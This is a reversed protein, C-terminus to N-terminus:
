LMMAHKPNEAYLDEIEDAFRLTIQRRLLKLTPTVLQNEPSFPEDVLCFRKIREFASLETMLSSFEDRLLETVQSDDLSPKDALRLKKALAELDPAILATVYRRGDGIACVSSVLPTRKLANEVAQPAVNKGTALVMIERKRDIITLYGDSDLAGIDGTHYWGDADIAEATAEPRRWYGKMVIPGRVLVEGDDALKLEVGPVAKGVTGLKFERSWTIAATGTLETAGYGEYVPVGIGWFFEISKRNSNAGGTVIFDMRGGLKARMKRLVLSDLVNGLLGLEVTKVKGGGAIAALRRTRCHRLALHALRRMVLGKADVAQIAREKFKDLLHPVTPFATPATEVLNSPIKEREPEAIALTGGSLLTAPVTTNRAMVHALPLHLLATQEGDPLMQAITRQANFVVNAHTLMAGKPEGTTGSTYFLASVDDPQVLPKRLSAQTSPDSGILREGVQLLEKFSIFANNSESSVQESAKIEAAIPQLGERLSAETAFLERLRAESSVIALPEADRILAAAQTAVVTHYVTTTAAGLLQCALDCVVWPWSNELWIAVRDGKTVGQKQLAAACALVRRELEEFSISQWTNADKWRLAPREGFRRAADIFQHAYTPGEAMIKVVPLREDRDSVNM